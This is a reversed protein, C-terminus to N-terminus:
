TIRTSLPPSKLTIPRNRQANALRWASFNAWTSADHPLALRTKVWFREVNGYTVRLKDPKVVSIALNEYFLPSMAGGELSFKACTSRHLGPSPNRRGLAFRMPRGKKANCLENADMDQLHAAHITGADGNISSRSSILFTKVACRSPV